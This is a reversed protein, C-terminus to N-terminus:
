SHSKKEQNKKKNNNNNNQKKIKKSFLNRKMCYLGDMNEGRERGGLNEQDGRESVSRNLKQKGESFLWSDVVL